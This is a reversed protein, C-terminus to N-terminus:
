ISSDRSTDYTKLFDKNTVISYNRLYSNNIRLHVHLMLLHRPTKISAHAITLTFFSLSWMRLLPLDLSWCGLEDFLLFVMDSLGESGASLPGSSLSNVIAYYNMIYMCFNVCLNNNNPVECSHHHLM